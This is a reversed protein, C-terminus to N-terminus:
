FCAHGDGESSGRLSHRETTNKTTTSNCCGDDANTGLVASTDGQTSFGKQVWRIIGHQMNVVKIRDYGNNILFGAARLSRAGAQCVLVLEKDMPLEKFRKEFETLPINVINPVDYALQKVEHKERVDVLLAGKRVWLQTTTPCIENVLSQKIEM